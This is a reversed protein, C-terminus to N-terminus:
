ICLDSLFWDVTVNNQESIRNFFQRLARLKNEYRWTGRTVYFTPHTLGEKFEWTMSIPDPIGPVQESFHLLGQHIESLVDNKKDCENIQFQLLGKVCPEDMYHLKIKDNVWALETM